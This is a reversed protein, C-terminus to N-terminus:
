APVEAKEIERAVDQSVDKKLSTVWRSVFQARSKPATNVRLGRWRHIVEFPIPDKTFQYGTRELFRIRWLFEDRDVEHMDVFMTTVILSNLWGWDEDSGSNGPWPGDPCHTTDWDLSM